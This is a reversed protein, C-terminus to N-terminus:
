NRRASFTAVGNPCGPFGLLGISGSATGNLQLTGYVQAYNQGDPPGSGFGFSAAGAGVDLTPLSLGEFTLTGTCAGLRYGFTIATVRADASVTFSIATSQTTSGAWQGQFTTVPSSPATPPGGGPSDGSCAAVVLVHLLTLCKLLLRM